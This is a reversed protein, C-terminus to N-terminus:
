PAAQVVAGLRKLLGELLARQKRFADRTDHDMAHHIESSTESHAAKLLRVLQEREESNVEITM